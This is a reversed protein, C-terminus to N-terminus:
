YTEWATLAVAYQTGGVAVPAAGSHFGIGSIRQGATVRRVVSLARGAQNVTRVGNVAYGVQPSAFSGGMATDIDIRVTADRNVIVGLGDPSITFLGGPDDSFTTPPTLLLLMETWANQPITQYPTSPNAVGIFAQRPIARALHGSVRALASTLGPAASPLNLTFFTPTTADQGVIVYTSAATPGFVTKVGLGSAYTASPKWLEYWAYGDLTALVVTSGGAISSTFPLLLPSGPTANQHPREAVHTLSTSTNIQYGVKVVLSTTSPNDIRLIGNPADDTGFIVCDRFAWIATPQYSTTVTTWTSGLNWSVLIKRETGDFNDGTTVWIAGRFPDYIAGHVHRTSLIGSGHDYIVSWTLGYDQTLWVKQTISRSGPAKSDYESV